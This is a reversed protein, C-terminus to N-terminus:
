NQASEAHHAIRPRQACVRQTGQQGWIKPTKKHFTRYSTDLRSESITNRVRIVFGAAGPLRIHLTLAKPIRGLIAEDAERDADLTDLMDVLDTDVYDDLVKPRLANFELPKSVRPLLSNGTAGFLNKSHPLRVRSM